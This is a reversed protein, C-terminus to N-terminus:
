KRFYLITFIIVIALFQLGVRWRMLTQSRAGSGGGGRIMNAFGLLVVIAVVGVAVAVVINSWDAM